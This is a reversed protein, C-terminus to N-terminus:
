NSENPKGKVKAPVTIAITETHQIDLKAVVSALTTQLAAMSAANAAQMEAINTTATELQKKYEALLKTQDAALEEPTKPFQHNYENVLTDHYATATDELERYENFLSDYKSSIVGLKEVQANQNYYGNYYQGVINGEADSWCVFRTQNNQM